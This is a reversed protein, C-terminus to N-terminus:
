KELTLKNSKCTFLLLGYSGILLYCLVAKLISAALEPQIGLAETMVGLCSCPKSYYVLHLGVRYFVFCTTLWAIIGIKFWQSKGLFCIYAIVIEIGGVIWFVFRFQIKFIPDPLALVNASGFGTIVKAVGTILLLVGASYIFLKAFRFIM